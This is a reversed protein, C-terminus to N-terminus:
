LAEFHFFGHYLLLVQNSALLGVNSVYVFTLLLLFSSFHSLAQGVRSSAVSLDSVFGLSLPISYFSCVFVSSYYVCCLSVSNPKPRAEFAKPFPLYVTPCFVMSIMRVQQLFLSGHQPDVKARKPSKSEYDDTGIALPVSVFWPLSVLGTFV